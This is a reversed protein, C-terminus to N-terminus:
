DELRKLEATLKIFREEDGADLAEDIEKHLKKKRFDTESFRLLAESEEGYRMDLDNEIFPNEELVSVYESSRSSAPFVLRVYIPEDADIRIDHFAKEPQETEVNGKRYLFSCDSMTKESVIMARPCQTINDVFRLLAIMDDDSLIYNLLWVCERSKLQYHRLFWKLFLRKEEISIMQEIAM